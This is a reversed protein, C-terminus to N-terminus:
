TNCFSAKTKLIKNEQSSSFLSLPCRYEAILMNTHSYLCIYRFIATYTLVSMYISFISIHSDCYRFVLTEITCVIWISSDCKYTLVFRYISIYNYIVKTNKGRRFRHKQVHCNYLVTLITSYYVVIYFYKQIKEGELDISKHMLDHSSYKSIFTHVWSICIQVSKRKVKQIHYQSLVCVFTIHM